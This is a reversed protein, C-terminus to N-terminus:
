RGGYEVRMLCLGQPPATVGAITRDKTEIAQRIIDEPLRGRGVDALTGAIIRVMNYLFGNGTVEIRIIQPDSADRYVDASYITRVTTKSQRQASSLATFDHEGVLDQAARRMADIDMPEHIHTMYLRYQPLLFTGNYYSYCYTKRKAEFQPNFDQETEEADLVRIDEPLCSNLALSLKRVPIPYELTVAAVQGRAHVGADTRGSADVRVEEHFLTYFAEELKQQISIGNNQRQWGAYDTGDYAVTMRIRRSM